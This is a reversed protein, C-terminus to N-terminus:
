LIKVLQWIFLPLLLAYLGFLLIYFLVTGWAMPRDNTIQHSLRQIKEGITMAYCIRFTFEQNPVLIGTLFTTGMPYVDTDIGGLTIANGEYSTPSKVTILYTKGQSNSINPFIFSYWSENRLIAANFTTQHLLLTSEPYTNADSMEMLTIIIDKTNTRWYTHFLLDVRNLNNQQAVFSQGAVIDDWIQIHDSPLTNYNIYQGECGLQNLMNTFILGMASLSALLLIALYTKKSIIRSM